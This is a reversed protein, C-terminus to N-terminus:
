HKGLFLPLDDPSTLRTRRNANDALLNVEVAVPKGPQVDFILRQTQHEPHTVELVYVGPALTITSDFSDELESALGLRRDDLVVMADAPQILLQVEGPQRSVPAAPPRPTPPTMVPPPPPAREVRREPEPAQVVIYIPQQPPPGLTQAAYGDAADHERYGSSPVYVVYGTRYGHHHGRHHGRERHYERDDGHPSPTLRRGYGFDGPLLSGPQVRPLPERPTFNHPKPTQSRYAGHGRYRGPSAANQRLHHSTGPRTPAYTKTSSASQGSAPLGPFFCVLSVVATRAVIKSLHSKM